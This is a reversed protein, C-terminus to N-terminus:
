GGLSQGAESQQEPHDGIFGNMSDTVANGNSDMTPNAMELLDELRTDTYSLREALKDSCAALM